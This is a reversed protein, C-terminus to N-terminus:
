SYNLKKLFALFLYALLYLLSFHSLNVKVFKGIM